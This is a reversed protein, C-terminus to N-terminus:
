GQFLVGKYVPCQRHDWSSLFTYLVVGSILVCGITGAIHREFSSEEKIRILDVTGRAVHLYMHFVFIFVLVSLRERLSTSVVVHAFGWLTDAIPLNQQVYVYM